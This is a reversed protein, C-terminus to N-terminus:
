INRKYNNAAKLANEGFIARTNDFAIWGRQREKCPYGQSDETMFYFMSKIGSKSNNLKEKAIRKHYETVQMLEM